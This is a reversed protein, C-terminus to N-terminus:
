AVADFDLIAVLLLLGAKELLEVFFFIIMTIKPHTKARIM